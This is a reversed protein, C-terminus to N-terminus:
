ARSGRRERSRLRFLALLGLLGWPAGSSGFGGDARCSCGDGGDIAGGGSGGGSPLDGGDSESAGDGGDDDLGGDGVTGGASDEGGDGSEDVGGDEGGDDAGAAGEVVFSVMDTSYHDFHDAIEMTIAYTGPDLNVLNLAARYESDVERDYDIQDFVVEGDQEIVFRWGYGGYNDDVVARLDVDSGEPLVIGDEPSVIEVYPDELDPENGGFLFALEEMENQRDQGVGCFDEHFLRCGADGQCQSECLGDCTPSFIGNGSGCYSMVSNCNLSHDLGWAHGAEQATVNAVATASWGANAFTYVVHRQGLAGCDTGPAVGAASDELNTDTWSGGIMVMTYPLIQPPRDLYVVNIGLSSVDSAMEQAAAVAKAEGGTYVPYEGHTALSSRSEASNDSGNYLMGGTYNMYLTHKRPYENGPIDEVAHMVAPDALQGQAIPEPVVVSGQPRLGGPPPATSAGNALAEAAVDDLEDFDVTEAYPQTRYEGAAAARAQASLDVTRVGNQPPAFPHYGEGEAAATAPLALLVAILISPSRM